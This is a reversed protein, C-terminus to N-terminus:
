EETAATKMQELLVRTQYAIEDNKTKLRNFSVWMREIGSCALMVAGGKLTLDPIYIVGLAGGIFEAIGFLLDRALAATEIRDM